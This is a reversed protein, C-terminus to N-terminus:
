KTPQWTQGGDNSVIREKTKPNTAYIPQAGVSDRSLDTVRRSSSQQGGCVVSGQMFTGNPKPTGGPNYQCFELAGTQTDVRWASYIPIKTQIGGNFPQSSAPVIM